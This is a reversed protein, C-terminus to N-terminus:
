HGGEARHAQYEMIRDLKDDMRNLRIDLEQKDLMLTADRSQLQSKTSAEDEKQREEINALRTTIASSWWLASGAQIALSVAIALITPGLITIWDRRKQEDRAENM